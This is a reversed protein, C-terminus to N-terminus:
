QRLLRSMIGYYTWYVLNFVLFLSPYVSRAHEDIEIQYKTMMRQLDDEMPIQDELNKAHLTDRWKPRNQTTAADTSPPDLRRDAMDPSVQNSGTIQFIRQRHAKKIRSTKFLIFAYEALATFVLGICGSIWYEMATEERAVPIRETANNFSNILVLCLTILLTIRAAIIQAPIFFSVWSMLVFIGTPLYVNLLYPTVFRTLHIELSYM